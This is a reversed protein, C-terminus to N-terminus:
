PLLTRSELVDRIDFLGTDVSLPGSFVGYIM